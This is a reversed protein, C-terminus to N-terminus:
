TGWRYGVGRVTELQGARDGLKQRLRRVVVDVVNSSYDDEIGWVEDLLTVRSVAKGRRQQLSALLRSELDTLGVRTGDLYAEHSDADIVVDAQLGLEAAVLGTLWGDVSAPGFDLVVSTFTRGGISAVGDEPGVPRFGLRTVVPLYVAPQEVVTYIRRLDPRLEMYTRKVDLWAAAQSACPLEGHELDLWRRFGLVLQGSPPPSAVLHRRWGAVVPDDAGHESLVTAHDLLISFGAVM